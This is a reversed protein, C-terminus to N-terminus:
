KWAITWAIANKLCFFLLVFVARFTIGGIKNHQGMVNSASTPSIATSISCEHWYETVNQQQTVSPLLPVTQFIDDPMSACIFCLHTVSNRWSSFIASLSMWQCKSFMYLTWVTSTLVILLHHQTEATADTVAPWKQQKHQHLNCAHCAPVQEHSTIVTTVM